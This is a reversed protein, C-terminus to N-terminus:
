FQPTWFSAQNASLFMRRIFIAYCASSFYNLLHRSSICCSLNFAFSNTDLGSVSHLWLYSPIVSGAPAEVPLVVWRTALASLVTVGPWVFPLPLLPISSSDSHSLSAASMAGDPGSHFSKTFYVRKHPVNNQTRQHPLHPPFFFDGLLSILHLVVQHYRNRMEPKPLMHDLVLQRGKNAHSAGWKAYRSNWLVGIHVLLM